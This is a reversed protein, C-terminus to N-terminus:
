SRPISSCHSSSCSWCQPLVLFKLSRITPPLQPVLLVVTDLQTRSFHLDLPSRRTMTKLLQEMSGTSTQATTNTLEMVLCRVTQRNESRRNPISPRSGHSVLTTTRRTGGVEIYMKHFLTVTEQSLPCNFCRGDSTPRVMGTQEISEMSSNTHRRVVKFFTIQPNGTLYIDQAGYAVLQM